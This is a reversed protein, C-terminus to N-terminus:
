AIVSWYRIVAPGAGGYSPFLPCPSARMAGSHTNQHIKLSSPRNFRRNCINCVHKRQAPNTPSRRRRSRGAESDEPDLSGDSAEEDGEDESLSPPVRVPRPGLFPPPSLHHLPPGVGQYASLNPTTHAHQMPPPLLHPPFVDHISPLVVNAGQRSNSPGAPINRHASPAPPSSWRRRAPPPPPYDSM